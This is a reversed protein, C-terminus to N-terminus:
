LDGITKDMLRLFFSEFHNQGWLCFRVSYYFMLPYSHKYSELSRIDAVDPPSGQEFSSRYVSAESTAELQDQANHTTYLFQFNRKNM